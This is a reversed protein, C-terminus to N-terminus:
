RNLYEYSYWNYKNYDVLKTPKWNKTWHEDTKVHGKRVLKFLNNFENEAVSIVGDDKVYGDSNRIVFGESAPLGTVPDYGGLL